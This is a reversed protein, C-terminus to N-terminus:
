ANFFELTKTIVFNLDKEDINYYLMLQNDKIEDYLFAVRM